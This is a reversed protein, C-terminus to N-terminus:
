RITTPRAPPLSSSLSAPATEIVPEASTSSSGFMSVNNMLRQYFPRADPTAAVAVPATAPTAVPVPIAALPTAPETKEVIATKTAQLPKANDAPSPATVRPLAATTEPPSAPAAFALATTAPSAVPKGSSDILVERPGSALADPRSVDGLNRRTRNGVLLSQDQEGGASAMMTGTFSHHQGGDEYVLQVAPTGKAVLEAVEREDERSKQAVSQALAPDSTGSACSSEDDKANFAYRKGCVSVRPELKAVEFHDSGEKMNRWFAMHPNYRHKALNQATMRFPYSQFQFSRQGNNLSERALAYVEKISEDTMAFCGRSSCSGHVMLHSGTRGLMKDYSNPYGTDFSLYFSSNPNLQAPTVQYFGEPAQRDGERTKPGLQGSWRCIPYTKLLAYQGDRGKKWVELESEKKFSRILIPDSPVMGKTSMLAMTAPPIPSLHRSSRSYGDDECAVLLGCMMAIALIRKAM